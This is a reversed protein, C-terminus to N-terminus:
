FLVAKSLFLFINNEKMFLSGKSRREHMKKFFFFTNKLAVSVFIPANGLIFECFLM